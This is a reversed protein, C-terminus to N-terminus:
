KGDRRCTKLFIYLFKHGGTIVYLGFLVLLISWISFRFQFWLLSAIVGYRTGQNM